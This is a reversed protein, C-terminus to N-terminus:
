EINWEFEKESAEFRSTRIQRAQNLDWHEIRTDKLGILISKGDPSLCLGSRDAQTLNRQFLSKWNRTDLVVLDSNKGYSSYAFRKGDE